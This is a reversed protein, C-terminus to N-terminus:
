RVGIEAPLDALNDLLLDPGERELDEVEGICYTVACTHMGAAKGARM